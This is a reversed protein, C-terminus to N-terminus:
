LVILMQISIHNYLLHFTNINKCPYTWMKPNILLCGTLLKSSAVFCISKLKCSAETFSFQKLLFLHFQNMGQLSFINTSHKVTFYRFDFCHHQETIGQSPTLSLGSCYKCDKPLPALWSSFGHSTWHYGLQLFPMAALNNMSKCTSFFIFSSLPFPSWM